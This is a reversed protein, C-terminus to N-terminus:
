KDDYHGKCSLIMVTSGKLQYILRDKKNIEASYYGALEHKLAEAHAIRNGRRIEKLMKDIKKKDNKEANLYDDWANDEFNYGM